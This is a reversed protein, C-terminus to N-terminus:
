GPALVELPKNKGDRILTRSPLEGRFLYHWGGRPTGVVYTEPLEVRGRLTKHAEATDVDLQVQGRPIVIGVNADPWRLWWTDVQEPDSTAVRQWSRLRPRKGGAELPHVRHGDAAYRLAVARM